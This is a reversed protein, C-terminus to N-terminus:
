RREESNWLRVHLRDTYRYGHKLCFEAVFLANRQLQAANDGLPMCFIENKYTHCIEHLEEAATRMEPAITFKIFSDNGENALRRIAGPIVRKRKPEGSNSLKVAMAFTVNRYAPYAEFPPALTANTEITIRFGQEAMWAIVEYFVPDEAYIMPEGGTIVIDCRYDLHETYDIVIRKLYAADSVAKWEQRYRKADVARITDCGAVKEGGIEYTGFGPCRLNCGGFRLFISPAGSYRGEGQM